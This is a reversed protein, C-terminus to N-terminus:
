QSLLLVRYFRHSDTANTDTISATVATALVDPTLSAWNTIGLDTKYQVRYNFNSVSSWTIMINTGGSLSVSTISFSANPTITLTGNTISVNYNSIVLTPDVLAPIIPYTGAPSSNSAPTSYTATLNDGNQIGVISGMFPPNTAGFARTANSATVSLSAQTVTLVGNTASVVYNSLNNGPDV